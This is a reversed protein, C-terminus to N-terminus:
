TIDYKRLSNKDITIFHGESVYLIPRIKDILWHTSYLDEKVYADIVDGIFLDHDGVPIVKIVRCELVGIAEKVIVINLKRAKVPTLGVAKFKDKVDKGSIVGALYINEVYNYDLINIAYGGSRKVINYTYREPSIAVAVRSPVYSVPVVWAATMIANNGQYSSTILVALGPQVLRIQDISVTKM